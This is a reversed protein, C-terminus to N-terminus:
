NIKCEVLVLRRLCSRDAPDLLNVNRLSWVGFDHCIRLNLGECTAFSVYCIVLIRVPSGKPTQWPLTANAPQGGVHGWDIRVKCGMSRRRERRNTAKNCGYILSSEMIIVNWRNENIEGNRLGPERCWNNQFAPNAPPLIPSRPGIQLAVCAYRRGVSLSWVFLASNLLGPVSVEFPARSVSNKCAM